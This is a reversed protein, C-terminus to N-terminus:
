FKSQLVQLLQLVSIQTHLWAIDIVYLVKLLM